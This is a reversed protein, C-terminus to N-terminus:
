RSGLVKSKIESATTMSPYRTYVYRLLDQLSLSGYKGKIRRVAEMAGSDRSADVHRQLWVIGQPTLKFRKEEFSDGSEREEEGMLYDFALNTEDTEAESAEAVADAEILGLNELKELDDYLDKSVPGFRYATFDFDPGTTAHVGAEHELLFLLKQLRTTGQIPEAEHRQGPAALLMMLLEARSLSM